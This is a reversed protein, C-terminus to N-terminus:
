KKPNKIVLPVKFYTEQREPANLFVQEESFSEKLEDARFVNGMGHVHSMPPVNETDVAKLQSIFDVIRSFDKRLSELEEGELALNALSCIKTIDEKTTM